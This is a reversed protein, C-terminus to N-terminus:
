KLTIEYIFVTNLKNFEYVFIIVRRQVVEKKKKENNKLNKISM